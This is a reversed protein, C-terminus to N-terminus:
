QLSKLRTRLESGETSLTRRIREVSERWDRASLEGRRYADSRSLIEDGWVQEADPEVMEADLSVLIDRALLARDNEPLELVASRIEDISM